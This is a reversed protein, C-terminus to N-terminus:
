LRIQRPVLVCTTNMHHSKISRISGGLFSFIEALELLFSREIHEGTSIIEALNIDTGNDQILLEVDTSNIQITIDLIDTHYTYVIEHLLRELLSYLVLKTDTDIYEEDCAYMSICFSFNQDKKYKKLLEHLSSQLGMNLLTHPAIDDALVHTSDSISEIFDKLKMLDQKTTKTKKLLFDTLMSMGVLKQIIEHQIKNLIRFRDTQETLLIELYRHNLDNNLKGIGAFERDPGYGGDAM